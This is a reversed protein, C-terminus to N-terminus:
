LDHAAFTFADIPESDRDGMEFDRDRMDVVGRLARDLGCGHRFAGFEFLKAQDHRREAVDAFREAGQPATVRLGCLTWKDRDERIIKLEKLREWDPSM